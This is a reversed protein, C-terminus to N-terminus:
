KNPIRKRCRFVLIMGAIIRLIAFLVFVIGINLALSDTDLDVDRATIVQEGNTVPCSGDALFQDAECQM